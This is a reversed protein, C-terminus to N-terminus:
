GVFMRKGVWRGPSLLPFVPIWHLLPCCLAAVSVSLLFPLHRHRACTMPLFAVRKSLSAAMTCLLCSTVKCNSWTDLGRNWFMIDDGGQLAVAKALKGGEIRSSARPVVPQSPLREMLSSSGAAEARQSSIDAVPLTFLNQHGPM